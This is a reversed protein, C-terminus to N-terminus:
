GIVGLMRTRDVLLGPVEVLNAVILNIAGAVLIGALNPTTQHIRWDEETKGEVATVQINQIATSERIM